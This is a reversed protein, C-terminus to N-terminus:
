MSPKRLPLSTILTTFGFPPLFPATLHALGAFKHEAAELLGEAESTSKLQCNAPVSGLNREHALVALVEKRAVRALYM